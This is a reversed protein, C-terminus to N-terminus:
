NRLTFINSGPQRKAQRMVAAYIPEATQPLYRNQVEEYVRMYGETMRDVTFRDIFDAYVRRRDIAPLALNIVRAANSEDAMKFGNVNNRIIEDVSSGPYNIAIVPTGCAMAETMVMGFPEKWRIPFLLAKAERLLKCKSSITEGPEPMDSVEGVYSILHPYKELMPAIERDFYEPEEADKPGALILRSNSEIAMKVALDAGKKAGIRGLFVLPADPAVNFNPSYLAQDIGNYVTRVFDFGKLDNSRAQAQSIAVMPFDNYFERVWEKPTNHVTTIVARTNFRHAVMLHTDETHAHVLTPQGALNRAGAEKFVDHLSKEIVKKPAFFTSEMGFAKECNPVLNLRAREEPDPFSDGSARVTVDVGKRELGQVLGQVVRETGGYTSVPLAIHPPVEHIVSLKSAPLKAMAM